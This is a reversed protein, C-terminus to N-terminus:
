VTQIGKARLEKEMAYQEATSSLNDIGLRDLIAEGNLMVEASGITSSYNLIIGEIVQTGIADADLKDYISDASDKILVDGITPTYGTKLGGAQNVTGFTYTKVDGLRTIGNFVTYGGASYTSVGELAM